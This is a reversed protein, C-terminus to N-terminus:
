SVLPKGPRTQRLIRVHLCRRGPLYIGVAKDPKDGIPFVYGRYIEDRWRKYVSLLARIEDRAQPSYLQTLQSFLPTAMLTIALHRGDCCRSCVDYRLLSCVM